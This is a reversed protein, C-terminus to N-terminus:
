NNTHLGCERNALAKTPDYYRDESELQHAELYADLNEDSWHYFPCVKIVGDKGINVIDMSDRLATQGKRLNTFWVDPQHHDMARKFPELKVQQTFLDHEATDPEPIGMVVDRHAATQQPVYLDINLNLQQITREAHQYTYSTNYGSDCWIVPIDTRQATVAHLITAEYPRFNTTIVPRKAVGLAWQVIEEPSANALEKNIAELNMPKM